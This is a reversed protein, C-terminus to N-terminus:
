IGRGDALKIDEMRFDGNEGEIEGKAWKPVYKGLVRGLARNFDTEVNTNVDTIQRQPEKLGPSDPKLGMSVYGAKGWWCVPCLFRQDVDPLLWDVIKSKYNKVYMESTQRCQLKTQFTEILDPTRVYPYLCSGGGATLNFM